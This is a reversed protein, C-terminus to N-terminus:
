DVHGAITREDGIPVKLSDWGGGRTELGKRVHAM